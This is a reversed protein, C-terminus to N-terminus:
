GEKTHFALAAVTSQTVHNEAPQACGGVGCGSLGSRQLGGRDGDLRAIIVALSWDGSSLFHPCPLDTKGLYSSIPVLVPAM